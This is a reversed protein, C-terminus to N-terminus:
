MDFDAGTRREDLAALRARIDALIKGPDDDSLSSVGVPVPAVPEPEADYLHSAEDKYSALVDAVKAEDIADDFRVTDPATSEAVPADAVPDPVTVVDPATSQAVPDDHIPDPVGVADSVAAEAVGAVAVAVTAPAVVEDPPDVSQTAPAAVTEDPGQHTASRPGGTLFPIDVSEPAVTAASATSRALIVANAPVGPTTAPDVGDAPVADAVDAAEDIAVEAIATMDANESADPEAQEDAREADVPEARDHSDEDTPTSADTPGFRLRVGHGSVDQEIVMEVREGNAVLKALDIVVPTPAGGDVRGTIAPM